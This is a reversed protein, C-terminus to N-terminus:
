KNCRWTFKKKINKLFSKIKIKNKHKMVFISCLCDYYPNHPKPKRSAIDHLIYSANYKTYYKERDISSDVFNCVDMLPYPMNFQRETLNDKAVDSLFNTEVPYNCDSYVDCNDKYKLYFNYFKNRLVELSEVTKIGKLSPLVNEKVWDVSIEIDTKLTLSDILNGKKDAVVASFCFAKGYLGDSEVDFMFINKKM